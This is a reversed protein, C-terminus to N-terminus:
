PDNADSELWTALNELREALASAQDAILAETEGLSEQRIGEARREHLEDALLLAAFLLSRSESQTAPAGGTNLKDDVMQGLATVHEEEGDGCAVMYSRGGIKLQVNSM